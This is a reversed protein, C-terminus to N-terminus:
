SLSKNDIINHTLPTQLEIKYEEAVEYAIRKVLCEVELMQYLNKLKYGLRWNVAHDGTEVVSIEPEREVNLANSAECSKEWITKLLSEIKEASIGYAINFHVFQMLGSAPGKSLVDIKSSRVVTNPLVILHRTKLDRFTTRTLTSQVVIALLKQEDIRVVAGPEIDNNYLLILGSINDPIWVDKTSFILIALIGLVSTAKLWDNMGWIHIVIVISAFIGILTVILSFIESQYTENHYNVGDIEKERGFKKLIFVHLLHSLIFAVLFTLGTLSIQKSWGEIFFAKIYLLFLIINIARLAYLKSSFSKKDNRKFGQVIPKSFIFLLLNISLVAYDFTSFSDLGIISTSM